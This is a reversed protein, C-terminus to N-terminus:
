FVFKKKRDLLYIFLFMYSCIYIPLYYMFFTAPATIFVLAFQMLLSASIVFLIARKKIKILSYIFMLLALAFPIILNYTFRIIMDLFGIGNKAYLCNLTKTRLNKNIAKGLPYKDLNTYKQDVNGEMVVSIIKGNKNYIKQSDLLCKIRNKIFERPHKIILSKYDNMMNKYKGSTDVGSYADAWFAKEGSKYKNVEDINIYREASNVIKSDKNEKYETMLLDHYPYVIATVNYDIANNYGKNLAFNQVGIICGTILVIIILTILVVKKRYKKFLLVIPLIVILIIGETRWAALLINLATLITLTKNDLRQNKINIAIIFFFLLEIFSYINLRMPYFVSVIIPPLLFFLGIFLAKKNYKELLVALVYAVVLSIIIYQIIVISSPFPFLMMSLIYFFSTLFHQWAISEYQVAHELVQKEDWVWNGPWILLMVISFIVFFSAFIIAWRRYFLNGRKIQIVFSVIFYWIVVLVFYYAVKLCIYILLHKIDKVFVIKETFFSALFCVTAFVISIIIQKKRELLEQQITKLLNNM